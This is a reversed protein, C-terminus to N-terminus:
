YFEYIKPQPRTHLPGIYDFGHRADDPLRHAGFGTTWLNDPILIIPDESEPDQIIRCEASYTDQCGNEAYQSCLTRLEYHAQASALAGDLTEFPGECFNENSCCSCGTSISNFFLTRKEM